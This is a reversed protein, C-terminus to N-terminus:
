NKGQLALKQDFMLTASCSPWFFSVNCHEALEQNSNYHKKKTVFIITIYQGMYSLHYLMGM